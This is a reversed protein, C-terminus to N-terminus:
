LSPLRRVPECKPLARAPVPTFKTTSVFRIIDVIPANNGLRPCTRAVQVDATEGPGAPYPGAEILAQLVFDGRVVEFVLQEVDSGQVDSGQCLARWWALIEGM